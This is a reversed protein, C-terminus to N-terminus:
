ATQERKIGLHANAVLPEIIALAAALLLLWFWVPVWGAQAAPAAAAANAPTAMQQWQALRQDSLRQLQSERPDTNVALWQSRGGGRLEYFGPLTPVLRLEDSRSDLLPARRGDPSFVQVGSGATLPRTFVSGVTASEVRGREGALWAAAEALFGVFQPHLALDNWDRDLASTLVLVRGRGPQQQLLLPDGGELRLLVQTDEAPQVTVHRFFRLARWDGARRLVPHSDDVQAIRLAQPQPATVALAAAKGGLLPVTSVSHRGLTLLVGGGAVAYDQLSRTQAADLQGADAVAIVAYDNLVRRKLLAADVVEVRLRLGELAVLAARLYAADDGTASAAVVLVRPEVRRLLRHQADDGALADGASLLASVRHEGEGLDPIAFHEVYPAPRSPDLVKRGREVGDIVLKLERPRGIPLDGGVTVDVGATADASWQVSEVRQNASTSGGADILDLTMGQPPQLDSLHMPSGSAQLDTIVHLVVAQGSGESLSAAAGMLNGYDLRSQGPALDLLAARVAGADSAFVAPQLVRLQHDAAALLVRDASQLDDLIASARQQAQQWVGSRQMSLSTDLVLLHLRADAQATASPKRPWQLGALALVMLVLLALRLALLLWWRLQQRRNRRVQGAEILMLSAFARREDTRRAFRHLWLPLAIGLLGLLFAPALWM